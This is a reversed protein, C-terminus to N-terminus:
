HKKLLKALRNLLTIIPFRPTLVVFFNRGLHECFPYKFLALGAPLTYEFSFGVWKKAITEGVSFRSVDEIEDKSDVPSSILIRFSSDSQTTSMVYLV